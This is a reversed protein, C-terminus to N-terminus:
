RWADGAGDIGRGETVALARLRSRAPAFEPNAELCDAYALSALDPRGSAEAVLGRHYAVRWGPAGLRAAVDLRENAVAYEGELYAVSALMEWLGAHDPSLERQEELIRRAFRLNGEDIAIRGRLVAAEPHIPQLRRLVDLTKLADEKRGGEYRVTAAALLIEPDRPFEVALRAIQQSVAECDLIPTETPRRQECGGDEARARDWAELLPELRSRAANPNPPPPSQCAAVFVCLLLTGLRVGCRGRRGRPSLFVSSDPM